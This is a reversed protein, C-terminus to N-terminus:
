KKPVLKIIEETVSTACIASMRNSLNIEDAFTLPPEEGMYKAANESSDFTPRFQEINSIVACLIDKYDSDLKKDGKKQYDKM